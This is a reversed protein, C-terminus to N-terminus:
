DCLKPIWVAMTGPERNDWAYYPVAKILIEIFSQSGNVARYLSKEWGDTAAVLGKTEIVTIGGLFESDFRTRFEAEPALMIQTVPWSHDTEELCYVLPGRQLAVRGTNQWVAPHAKICEVPMEMALTIQDGHFWNRKLIAYGNEVPVAVTENNVNVQYDHCWSPIRLFVTFENTKELELRFQAKGNWPYDTEQIIAMTDGSPLNVKAVSQIYLHVAIGDPTESYIYGGLSALLRAVNPPCCACQFWGQRHHDGHSQLPNIYFFTRCDLSVGALFGNYLVREMIDGFRGEGTLQLLRHNWMIMGVAACTEAYASDNPLDYDHTFGENRDSPGISGTIYMRRNTVNEWLREMSALLAPDGTEAALDAMACYLYMARVAHGVVESQELVPLHDQAYRGDYDDYTGFFQRNLQGPWGAKGAIEDFHNLEWRFRSGSKGRQMIFFLALNLYRPEAKVRYLDVLATEIEEHGDAAELKGPGFVTDIHDALRCAVDLLTRGGTAKYHAVAAQILHGACYLEHCMGLNTFKKEPEVLQFYTNLYGDPQQSAAILAITENVCKELGPDPHTALTFSAAELWKYADSDMWFPGAFEGGTQGLVRKFNDLVGSTALQQYQYPLSVDRNGDIKSKWFQGTIQVAHHGVPQFKAYSPNPQKM